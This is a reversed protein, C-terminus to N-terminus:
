SFLLNFKNLVIKTQSAIILDPHFSTALRSHQYSELRTSVKVVSKLLMLINDDGTTGGFKGGGLSPLSISQTSAVNSNCIFDFSM